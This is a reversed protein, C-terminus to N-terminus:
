RRQIRRWRCFCSRRPTGCKSGTTATTPSSASSTTAPRPSGSANASPPADRSSSAEGAGRQRDRHARDAFGAAHVRTRRAAARRPGLLVGPQDRASRANVANTGAGDAAVRQERAYQTFPVDTSVAASAVGPIRAVADLLRAPAIGGPNEVRASMLPRRDFGMEGAVTRQYGDIMGGTEVLLAITVTIELVVLAHRWRQRVRDSSALTTLPNAHLRRTEYLAPALGVVIGSALTVLASQLLLRPDISLDFFAASAAPATSSCAACRSPRWSGSRAAASRWRTSETLLARVIRGRSAGLSARIAIEHERSTWQAIM